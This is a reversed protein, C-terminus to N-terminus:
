RPFIYSKLEYSEETNNYKTVTKSESEIQKRFKFHTGRWGLDKYVLVRYYLNAIQPDDNEDMQPINRASVILKPHDCGLQDLFGNPTNKERVNSFITDLALGLIICLFVSALWKMYFNWKAQNYPNNQFPTLENM